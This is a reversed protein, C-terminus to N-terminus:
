RGEDCPETCGDEPRRPGEPESYARGTVPSCSHVGRILDGCYRCTLRRPAVPESDRVVLPASM